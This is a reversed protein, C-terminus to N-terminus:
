TNEIINMAVDIRFLAEDINKDGKDRKDAILKKVAELAETAELLKIESDLLSKLKVNRSDLEQIDMGECANLCVTAARKKNPLLPESAQVHEAHEIMLRANQGSLCDSEINVVEEKAFELLHKHSRYLDLSSHPLNRSTNDTPM